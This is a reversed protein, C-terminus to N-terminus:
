YFIPPMRSRSAATKSPRGSAMAIPWLTTAVSPDKAPPVDAPNTNQAAFVVNSNQFLIGKMIQELTGEPRYGSATARQAASPRPSQAFATTLLISGAICTGLRSGFVRIKTKRLFPLM